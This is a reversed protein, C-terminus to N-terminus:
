MELNFGYICYFSPMLGVVKCWSQPKNLNMSSLNFRVLCVDKWGQENKLVVGTTVGAEDVM